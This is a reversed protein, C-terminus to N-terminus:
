GVPQSNENLSKCIALVTKDTTHDAPFDVTSSLFVTGIEKYGNVQEITHVERGTGEGNFFAYLKGDNGIQLIISSGANPEKTM